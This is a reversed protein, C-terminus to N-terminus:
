SAKKKKAYKKKEISMVDQGNDEILKELDDLSMKKGPKYKIEITGAKLNVRSSEVSKNGNLAKTIGQACFACVLGKVKLLVGNQPKAAAVTSSTSLSLALTVTTAILINSRTKKM